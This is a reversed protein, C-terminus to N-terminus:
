PEADPKLGLRPGTCVVIIIALAVKIPTDVDMTMGL